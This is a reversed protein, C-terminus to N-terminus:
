TRPNLRTHDDARLIRHLLTTFTRRERESLAQLFDDEARQASTVLSGLLHRGKPTLEVLQRRRDSPDRKRKVLERRELEDVYGVLHSQNVDLRDALERQALAGFDSLAALVAFRATDIDHDALAASFFRYGIRAVKTALYSPFALLTPPRPIEDKM